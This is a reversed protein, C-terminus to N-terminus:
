REWLLVRPATFWIWRAPVTLLVNLLFRSIMSLVMLIPM